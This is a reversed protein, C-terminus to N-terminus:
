ERDCRPARTALSKCSRSPWAASSIRPVPAVRDSSAAPAGTASISCSSRCAMMPMIPPPVLSIARLMMACRPSSKGRQVLLLKHAFFLRDGVLQFALDSENTEVTRILAVAEVGGDHFLQARGDLAGALFGFAPDDEAMAVIKTSPDVQAPRRILPLVPAGLPQRKREVAVSKKFRHRAAVNGEYGPQMAPGKAAPELGRRGRM